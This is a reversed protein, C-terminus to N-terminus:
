LIRRCFCSLIFLLFIVFLCSNKFTLNHVFHINRNSLTLDGRKNQRRNETEIFAQQFIRRRDHSHDEARKKNM